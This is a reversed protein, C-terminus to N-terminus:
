IREAQGASRLTTAAGWYAVAAIIAMPSLALLGLRLSQEHAVHGFTDSITGVYL